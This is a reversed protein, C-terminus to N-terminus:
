EAVLKVLWVAAPAEIMLMPFTSSLGSGFYDPVGMLIVPPWFGPFAPPLKRFSASLQSFCEALKGSTRALKGPPQPLKNLREPFKKLRELL